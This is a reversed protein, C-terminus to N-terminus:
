RAYLELYNSMMRQMSYRESLAVGNRSLDCRMGPDAARLVAAAISSPDRPDTPVGVGRFLDALGAVDAYV